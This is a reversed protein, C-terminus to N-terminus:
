ECYQTQLPDAAARRQAEEATMWKGDVKVEGLQARAVRNDPDVRVADHLLTFSRAIDGSIEAQVATAVLREAEAKATESAVGFAHNSLGASVAVIGVLNCVMFPPCFRYHSFVLSSAM